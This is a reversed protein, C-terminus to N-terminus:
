NLGYIGSQYNFKIGYKEPEAFQRLRNELAKVEPPGLGHFGRELIRSLEAAAKEGSEWYTVGAGTIDNVLLQRFRGIGAGFLDEYALLKDLKELFAFHLGRGLLSHVRDEGAQFQWAPYFYEISDEPYAMLCLELWADDAPGESARALPLFSRYDMFLYYTRGDERRHPALGPLADKLWFLDEAQENERARVALERVLTDRLHLAMEMAQALAAPSHAQEISQRYQVAMEALAPGFLARLRVSPSLGKGADQGLFAAQYAWGQIGEELQVLLWPENYVAGGLELWTSFTSQEGLSYAKEGPELRRIAKGEEGPEERLYFNPRQVILVGEEPLAAGGAPKDEKGEGARCAPIVALFLFLLGHGIIQRKIM